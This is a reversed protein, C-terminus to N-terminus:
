DPNRATMLPRRTELSWRLRSKRPCSLLDHGILWPIAAVAGFRGRAKAGSRRETILFANIGPEQYNSGGDDDDHDNDDDRTEDERRSRIVKSLSAKSTLRSIPLSKIRRNFSIRLDSLSARKQRDFKIAEDDVEPKSIGRAKRRRSIGCVPIKPSKKVSGFASRRCSVRASFNTMM